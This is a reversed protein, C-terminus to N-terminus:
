IFRQVAWYEETVNQIQNQKSRIFTIARARRAMMEVFHYTLIYLQVYRPVPKKRQPILSVTIWQQWLCTAISIRISLM